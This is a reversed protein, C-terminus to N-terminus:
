GSKCLAQGRGFEVTGVRDEISSGRFRAGAQRHTEWAKMKGCVPCGSGSHRDSIRAEWEHGKKCIWWVRKGSGATVDKPTLGNNKTPHWQAALHPAVTELCNDACVRQGWCYPCGTQFHTRNSVTDQWVHGKQCLWWRRKSSDPTVSRPTLDGNLTPHWQGALTPNIVSLNYDPTLKAM